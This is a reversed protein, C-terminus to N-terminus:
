QAYFEAMFFVSYSCTALCSSFVCNLSCPPPRTCGDFFIVLFSRETSAFSFSTNSKERLHHFSSASFSTFVAAIKVRVVHELFRLSVPQYHSLLVFHIFGHVRTMPIDVESKMLLAGSCVKVKFVSTICEGYM